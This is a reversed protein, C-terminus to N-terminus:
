SRGAREFAGINPADQDLRVGDFDRGGSDPVVVGSDVLAAGRGPANGRALGLRPGTRASGFPGTVDPDVFRPDGRVPSPDDAPVALSAGGYFNRDYHITPSTTLSAGDHTSFLANNQLTYSANLSSGFGFVLFDSTTNYVTNNTISAVTGRNSHLYIPYRASQTIVNYRLAVSGFSGSCQCLLIGDGNDHSYNYQIVVGTTGIDADIGNFDAGGAKRQTGYVENHQITVSDSNYTEMGSTGAARVVNHDELVGRVDTLYIGDAGYATGGQTVFNDRITVNTFPAFLPDSATRRSGWGTPVAVTGGNQGKGDGTYQKTIIGGFSTNMITSREVVIDSLLTPASPPNEIDPVTTDFVIGGTHKSADWGTKFRIGPANGSTSGGIWNVEGTVDHVNVSDVIFHDHIRSDDGSVHIGRLDALNAGPTGTSPAANTVELNRIEWFQQNFLRVADAHQGGADIRPKPGRGYRDLVISRRQDGSGKPWLQGQWVGGARLLIRDGPRFTTADVKELTRWASEPSTGRAGDHGRQADVYYAAGPEERASAQAPMALAGAALVAAAILTTRM